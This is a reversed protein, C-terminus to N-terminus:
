DSEARKDLCVKLQRALIEVAPKRVISYHTAPINFVEIEEGSFDRWGLMSDRVARVSEESSWLTIRRVKARPVYRLFATSNTKFVHYLRTLQELSLDDLLPNDPKAQECFYKLLEEPEMQSLKENHLALHEANLGLGRAFDELLGIEDFKDPNVKSLLPSASDILGLFSVREGQALLQHSMEFAIVGGISWGCLSYPGEPQVERVAKVYEAAMDEIRTQTEQTEDLGKAQLGYVPQASDLQHALELYCLVDGDVPHVCFLPSKSSGKQIRVLPSWRQTSQPQRLLESTREITTPESFTTMPPSSDNLAISASAERDDLLIGAEIFTEAIEEVVERGGWEESLAEVVGRVTPGEFLRRLGVKVQFVKVVRAMVRTALLSHGGMEFFDATVGVREVGLVQAFIDAIVEEAPTQPAVYNDSRVVQTVDPAPLARRDIKGSPTLPLADLPVFVSPIMYDPLRQKLWDRLEVLLSKETPAATTEFGDDDTKGSQGGALVCYAVLHKQEPESERAVVVADQVLPHQRLVTELEGLEIRFGRIKLQHDRRGLFEIQGDPLYRVLDGTKYLRAGAEGSLADPIFREATLWAANVYGRALCEGGIYLEGAVGEPVAELHEDLVYVRTNAVPRGIPVVEWEAAREGASGAGVPPSRWYTADITAETPGYLNVIEAARLQEKFGRVLETTLAEGGCFVRRLSSCGRLGEEELMRLQTPVVQLTTVRRRKIEEILYAADRHGGSRALVLRAGSLLPAWFEWVSADFSFPTKQLVADDTALPFHQQMWLMHNLLSAHSLMVGKPRGTSGSTYILYALNEGRVPAPLPLAGATEMSAQDTDLYMTPVSHAPLHETFRQETLLLQTGSDALMFAIREAPYEPDLPLYAGGAKLIALLSVVLELSRELLLAVIAEPGIGRARLHQALHHARESLQQYTLHDDEFSLAISQPTREAQAEFLEHVLARQPYEVSTENWEVLLRRLEDEPLLARREYREHPNRAMAALTRAYYGGIEKLQEAPIQRGESQLSLRIQTTSLDLSFGAWLKLNTEAFNNGGLVKVGSLERLSEYVHFHTFNFAVDFLAQGGNDRQMQVMPYYRFPLAKREAEFTEQALTLWSGGPLRHRFPITNLYLGLGRVSDAEEPRGHTLMGTLVDTQGSLLSLARLHAALLVSKLPVSAARALEKLGESVEPSIPVDHVIVRPGVKTDPSSRRPLTTVTSGDLQSEWFRRHEQSRLAAQERAVYDRFINIPTPADAEGEGKLLQLYTQFLETLLAAVSWGDLIAHHETLNFQFRESSRRYVHFRLLPAVAWDFARRKEEEFWGALKREQEAEPMDRLDDVCLPLEIHRHVLQLPESFNMLDFSTRLVPHRQVVRHIAAELAPLDFPAQLHYTSVNHYVAEQENYAGEFLMGAQLMTLPYADEIGEPLKERDEISILRFAESGAPEAVDSTELEPASALGRITQHQFLQQLSFEIGREKAKSVVWVSRISDGGLAFFNDDIGVEDVGLVEAWISALIEEEETRPRTLSHGAEARKIEMALLARRDAKGNSTLPMEDLMVFVAPVMYEPLREKLFGRLEEAAPKGEDDCAAVVYAALRKDGSADEKALVVAERVSEHAHLAVEVEGLEIRHGRIKVQADARGLYELEGNALYRGIDGTRYLRAGARANFPDPVFREATLEPRNLYGRAVGGGGVYFEGWVGIPLLEQQADLVYVQLDDLPVGIASGSGKGMDASRLVRWTVHVTTETIGYMNVMVPREDGHRAFWPRLSQIELAEGGFIVVRLSLSEPGEEAAAEATMLQRFASPTQNLVTVGEHRLLSYFSDPARSVWYPVVVLKGGYLLAGWLEWVSFDFAYSHFLTWVDAANFKFMPDSAAFLRTVNAHTVLTGKPKGTSGSTYIIYATHEPTAGSVTDDSSRTAIEPWDADICVVRARSPPLLDLLRQQTLLVPADADSLILALRERPYQPDLPVYAGGAKLVGLIGVVMELSRELCLAVPVEPGVGLERLLNALRNARENLERYSLSEAEYSLAIAEPSLRVQAEFLEQLSAGVLHEKAPNNWEALLRRREADSLWRLRDIREDPQSIISALLQEFHGILRTITAVDFLDTKYELTGTLGGDAEALSLTLDFKASVGHGGLGSLRLNGMEAREEPTNQLVMATQFLPTHSLAREPQLEEVLKEFPADQHAYAGLAVERVRGLLQRFSPSGSMDTRLVLMNIFFGILGETEDQTRGAIPTGVAIDDQGTYRMLLLQWAAMLTMFLTAEEEKALAKLARTIHTGVRVRVNAGRHSQTAPRPRDTPLELIRVGALQTKWYNLQRDLVEGSLQERQWVAYDVYQIPLRPLSSPRGASSAKYLAILERTLVGMSWGDSIIHHMTLLIIHDERDLRLVAVRLLPGTSLEFPQTAERAALRRAEREREQPPLASLDVIALPQRAHPAIFQVPQGDRASFTTRLIDHRSIIEDFAHELASLNLPGNMRVSNPINYLPSGPEFQDLFWLRQQSFSLPYYDAKEARPIANSQTNRIGKKELLLRFLELKESSTNNAQM